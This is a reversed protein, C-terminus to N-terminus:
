LKKRIRSLTEQSIGLMSAIHGLNTRQTISPFSRVLLEYKEKASLLYYGKYFDDLLAMQEEIMLRGFRELQPHKEYLEQWEIYNISLVTANETAEIYELSPKRLIYSHWSTVMMNEPYIWYTIDKGNQYFYTRLTGEIIFYIRNCISGEELFVHGKSVNEKLLISLIEKETIESITVYQKIYKIFPNM